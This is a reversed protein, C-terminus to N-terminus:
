SSVCVSALDSLLIEICNNLHIPCAHLLMLSLRKDSKILKSMYNLKKVNMSYLQGCANEKTKLNGKDGHIADNM